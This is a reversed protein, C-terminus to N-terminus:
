ILARNRPYRYTCEVARVTACENAKARQIFHRVDLLQVM